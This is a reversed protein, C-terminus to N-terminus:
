LAVSAAVPPVPVSVQLRAEPDDSGAPRDSAEPAIEPVGVASPVEVKVTFTVSAADVGSEAVWCSLRVILGMAKAMVVVVREPPVTLEV